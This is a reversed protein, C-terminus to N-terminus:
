SPSWSRSRVWWVTTSVLVYPLSLLEEYAAMSSAWSGLRLRHEPSRSCHATPRVGYGCGFDLRGARAHDLQRYSMLSGLRRSSPSSHRYRGPNACSLHGTRPVRRATHRVSPAHLNESGDHSRTRRRPHGLPHLMEFPVGARGHARVAASYGACATRASTLRQRSTPCGPASNPMSPDFVAMRCPSAATGRTRRTTRRRWSSTSGTRATAHPTVLPSCSPTCAPLRARTGPFRCARGTRRVPRIAHAQRAVVVSDYFHVGALQGTWVPDVPGPQHFGNVDDVRHVQGSWSPAPGARPRGSLSGTRRTATRSSSVGGDELLPFLTRRPSSRSSWRTVRRRRHRHRVPRAARGAASSSRTPRTASRWSMVRTRCRRPARRHRGRGPRGAPGFFWHWMDLSGGRYVGIELVRVRRGRYPGSTAPYIPFYHIWKDFYAAQVTRASTPSCRTTACSLSGTAWTSPRAIASTPWSTTSGMSTIVIASATPRYRLDERSNTSGCLLGRKRTLEDSTVVM